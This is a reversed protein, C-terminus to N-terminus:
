ACKQRVASGFLEGIQLSAAAARFYLRMVMLSQAEKNGNNSM